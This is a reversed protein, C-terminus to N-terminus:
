PGIVAEVGAATAAVGGPLIFTFNSAGSLAALLVALGLLVVFFTQRM